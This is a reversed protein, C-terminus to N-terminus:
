RTKLKTNMTDQGIQFPERRQMSRPSDSLSSSTRSLRMISSDSSSEAKIEEIQDYSDIKFERQILELPM